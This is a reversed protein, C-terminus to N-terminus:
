GSFNKRITKIPMLLHREHDKFRDFGYREYFSVARDDIAHVVVFQLGIEDSVRICSRLAHALLLEGAGEGRVRECRALRALLVCPIPYRVKSGFAQALEEGHLQYSLHSYYGLVSPDDDKRLVRTLTVNKKDSQNAHEKLWDTLAKNGCDFGQRDHRTADLKEIHWM